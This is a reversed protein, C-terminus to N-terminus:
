KLFSVCHVNENYMYIYIYIYEYKRSWVIKAVPFMVIYFMGM